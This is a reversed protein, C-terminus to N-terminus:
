KVGFPPNNVEHKSLKEKYTTIYDAYKKRDQATKARGLRATDDEIAKKLADREVEWAMVLRSRVPEPFDDYVAAGTKTQTPRAKPEPAPVVAQAPGAGRLDAKTPIRFRIMGECGYNKAPLELDLHTAAEIPAEFVLVDTVAKNPYISESRQVAGVPYTGLGFSVRKYQNGFNDSLTAFDRDLSFNSGAWTLYDVKKMPNTNLLELSVMLLDGKSSTDRGIAKLPVKGIATKTIRVELDGQRVTKDHAAWRPEVLTATKVPPDTEKKPIVPDDPPRTEAPKAPVPPNPPPPEVVQQPPDAKKGLGGCAIVLLTAAVLLAAAPIRRWRHM